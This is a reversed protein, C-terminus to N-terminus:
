YLCRFPLSLLVSCHSGDFRFCFRGFTCFIDSFGFPFRHRWPLLVRSYYAERTEVVICRRRKKVTALRPEEDSASDTLIVEVM